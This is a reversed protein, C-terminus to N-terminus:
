KASTFGLYNKASNYTGWWSSDLYQSPATAAASTTDLATTTQAESDSPPARQSWRSSLGPLRYGWFSTNSPKREPIYDYETIDEVPKDHDGEDQNVLKKAETGMVPSLSSPEQAFETNDSDEVETKYSQHENFLNRTKQPEPSHRQSSARSAGSVGTNQYESAPASPTAVSHIDSPSNLPQAISTETYEVVADNVLPTPVNEAVSGSANLNPIQNDMADVQEFSEAQMPQHALPSPPPYGYQDLVVGSAKNESIIDMSSVPEEPVVFPPPVESVFKPPYAENPGFHSFSYPDLESESYKKDLINKLHGQVVALGQDQGTSENLPLNFENQDNYAFEDTQTSAYKPGGQAEVATYEGGPQGNHQQPPYAGTPQRYTRHSLKLRRPQYRPAWSLQPEGQGTSGYMQQNGVGDYYTAPENAQFPVGSWHSQAEMAAYMDGNQRIYQQPQYANTPQQFSGYSQYQKNKQEDPLWAHELLTGKYYHKAVPFQPPGTPQDPQGNPPYASIAPPENYGYNPGIPQVGANQQIDEWQQQHGFDPRSQYNRQPISQFYQRTPYTPQGLNVRPQNRPLPIPQPRYESPQAVMYGRSRARPDYNLHQATHYAYDQEYPHNLYTPGQHYGKWNDQGDLLASPEDYPSEFYSNIINTPYQGNNYKEYQHPQFSQPQENPQTTDEMPERQLM